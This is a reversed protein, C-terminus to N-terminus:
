RLADVGLAVIQRAVIVSLGVRRDASRSLIIRAPSIAFQDPIM